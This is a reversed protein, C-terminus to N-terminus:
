QDATSADPAPPRPSEKVLVIVPVTAIERLALLGPDGFCALIVADAGEGHEAYADLAAHAAIAYTARTAIYRGGFRATAGAVDVGPGVIQRTAAVLMDTIAQSTNTNILLLRM